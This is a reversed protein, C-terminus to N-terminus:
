IMTTNIPSKNNPLNQQPYIKPKPQYDYKNNSNHSYQSLNDQQHVSPVNDQSGQVSSAKSKESKRFRTFSM